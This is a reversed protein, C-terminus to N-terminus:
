YPNTKLWSAYAALGDELKWAPRYDLDREAGSLDYPGQRDLTEIHGPGIEIEAGPVIRRVLEAAEALSIQV